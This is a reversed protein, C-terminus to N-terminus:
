LKDEHKHLILLYSGRFHNIYSALVTSIIFTLKSSGWRGYYFVFEIDLNTITDFAEYSEPRLLKKIAQPPYPKVHGFTNWVTQETPSIIIIRGGPKIVRTMEKVMKQAEDPTLHEIVNSCHCVDFSNDEFPINTADGHKVKYGEALALGVVRENIDFGEFNEKDLRIISTPGCGVDLVKKNKLFLEYTPNKGKLWVTFLQRSKM